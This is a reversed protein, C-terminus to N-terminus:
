YIMKFINTNLKIKLLKKLKRNNAVLCTPKINDKYIPLKNKKDFIIKSIDKLYTAKGTGINIVGGYKKKLLIIIIRSIDELSIFDRYHNLNKLVIQKKLKSKNKLDPILYNKRQNKNTMSFIRGICYKEKKINKAIYKESLLKTRGYFSIPSLKTTEKINIRTSKYVHSTSAFFLWSVNHKLFLDVINKTGIYNISYAKKKNRNVEKIPVIAALHILNSFKNKKFWRELKKKNRVDGKYAVFKLYKNHKNSTIIKKGITGSHGTLGIRLFNM